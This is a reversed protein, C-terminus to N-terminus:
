VNFVMYIDIYACRKVIFRLIQYLLGLVFVNLVKRSSLLMGDTGASVAWLTELVRASPISSGEM